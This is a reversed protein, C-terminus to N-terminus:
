AHLDPPPEKRGPEALNNVVRVVGDILREVHFNILLGLRRDTLRLYTRLKANDVPLIQEKAKADVIVKEEVLL